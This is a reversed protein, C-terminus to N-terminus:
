QGHCPKLFSFLVLIHSIIITLDTCLESVALQTPFPPPSGSAGIIHSTADAETQHTKNFVVERGSRLGVM